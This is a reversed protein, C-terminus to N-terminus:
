CCCSMACVPVCVDLGCAFERSTVFQDDRAEVEYALRAHLGDQGVEGIRSSMALASPGVRIGRKLM